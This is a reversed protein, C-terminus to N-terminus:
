KNRLEEIFAPLEIETPFFKDLIDYCLECQSTYESKLLHPAKEKALKILGSVGNLALFKIADDNEAKSVITELDKSPEKSDIKGLFLRPNVWCCEHISTFGGPIVTVVHGYLRGSGCEKNLRELHTIQIFDFENDPLERARGIKIINGLKIMDLPIHFYNALHVRNINKEICELFVRLGLNAAVKIGNIIYQYPIYMQHYKDASFTISSLGCYKLEQLIDISKEMSVAWYANSRISINKMGLEKAFKISKIISEILLFPEGGSFIVSRIGNDYAAQIYDKMEDDTMKINAKESDCNICCHSCKNNCEFTTLLFLVYNPLYPKFINEQHEDLM